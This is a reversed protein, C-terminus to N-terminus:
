DFSPAEKETGEPVSLNQIIKEFLASFQRLETETFGRFMAEELSRMRRLSEEALALGQGTLAVRNIRQDKEDVYRRILGERELVKLSATVTAPSRETKKVLDRQGPDGGSRSLMYITILLFHQAPDQLPIDQFQRAIASRRARDFQRLKGTPDIHLGDM